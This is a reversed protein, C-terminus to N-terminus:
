EKIEMTNFRSIKSQKLKKIEEKLFKIENKLENMQNKLENMENTNKMIKHENADMIFLNRNIEKSIEKDM